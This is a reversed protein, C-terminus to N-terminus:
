CPAPCRAVGRRAVTPGRAPARPLVFGARATRGARLGPVNEHSTPRAKAASTAAASLKKIVLLNMTTRTQTPKNQKTKKAPLRQQVLVRHLQRQQLSPILHLLGYQLDLRLTGPELEFPHALGDCVHSGKPHYTMRQYKLFECVNHALRQRLAIGLRDPGVAVAELVLDPRECLLIAPYAAM